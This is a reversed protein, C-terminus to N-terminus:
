TVMCTSSVVMMMAMTSLRSRNIRSHKRNQKPQRNAGTTPHISVVLDRPDAAPHLLQDPVVPLLLQDQEVVAMALVPIVKCKEKVRDKAREVQIGAAAIAVGVAVFVEQVNKPRRHCETGNNKRICILNKLNVVEPVVVM